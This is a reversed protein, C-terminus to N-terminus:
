GAAPTAELRLGQQNLVEGILRLLAAPRTRQSRLFEQGPLSKPCMLTLSQMDSCPIVNNGKVIRSDPWLGHRDVGFLSEEVEGLRLAEDIRGAYVLCVVVFRQLM